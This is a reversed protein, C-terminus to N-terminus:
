DGYSIVLDPDLLKRFEFLSGLEKSLYVTLDDTVFFCDDGNDVRYVERRERGHVSRVPAQPGIYTYSFWTYGKSFATHAMRTNWMPEPTCRGFWTTYSLLIIFALCFNNM